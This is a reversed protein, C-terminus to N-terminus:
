IRIKLFLTPPHPDEWGGGAFLMTRRHQHQMLTLEDACVVPLINEDPPGEDDSDATTATGAEQVYPYVQCYVFAMLTTVYDCRIKLCSVVTQLKNDFGPSRALIPFNAAVDSFLAATM